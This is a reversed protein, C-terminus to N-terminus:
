RRNEISEIISLAMRLQEATVNYGVKEVTFCRVIGNM